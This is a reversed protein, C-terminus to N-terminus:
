EATSEKDHGGCGQIWARGDRALFADAEAPGWGGSEYLIPTQATTLPDILKWALEIEDSRAFLSADGSLADLLLREYADPLGSGGLEGDYRFEMNVPSVRMGAGPVKTAFHLHIAEDPQICLSIHNPPPNVNEPFLLHPVRKFQLLIETAKRAMKKGSRLYFPVGQWRWNDVYFRLVAYTPTQSDQTVGDEHRYDDYQGLVRDDPGVPHVAMLVQTKEDRLTRANFVAPPEMATLTLLQLLHSQFMDRLVGAQDYYGARHGVGIDETMTIQVHDVYNRNWLPEFISNAFRFTLINQVTEKGLYHDIRFIQSEDFVDHLAQNLDLASQLDHGFPKEIILRTWGSKSRNLGAQGLQEVIPPYLTPPTAVHFLRNGQTGMEADFQALRESLRHFTQPDDYEGSLYSLRQAFRPWLECVGPKLRAYETVGEYLRARFDEDSLPTRAVGIIRTAPSLLGDFSLSLLAPVLKRRALDGSAGFIVIAAPQAEPSKPIM